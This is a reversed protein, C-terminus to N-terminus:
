GIAKAVKKALELDPEAYVETTTQSTHGLTVQAGELGAFKRAKTGFTHRIQNPNWKEVGLKKCARHIAQRYSSSDFHDRVRRKSAPKMQRAKRDRNHEKRRARNQDEVVERASFCHRDPARFLYPSLVAQGEPGIVIARDINHDETKHHTPRYIWVDDSRDIEGPKIDCIECPRMGTVMQLRVMDAVVRHLGPLTALVTEEPVSKVKRKKPLKAFGLKGLEYPIRSDIGLEPVGWDFVQVIVRQYRAQTRLEIPKAKRGNVAWGKALTFRLDRLQRCGFKSVPLDGYLQRLRSLVYRIEKYRNTLKGTRPDISREKADKLFAVALETVTFEDTEKRVPEGGSAVYSAIKRHYEAHSKPTGHRGLYHDKGRIRVVAQNSPKHLRYKPIRM